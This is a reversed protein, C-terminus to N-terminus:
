FNRFQALGQQWRALKEQFSMAAYAPSTSPLTVQELIPPLRYRHYLKAATQGNFALLNITPHQQYFNTFRNPVATNLQIASDLSGPRQCQSLVDWVAIGHRILQQCREPYPLTSDFQFIISMVHWFTNRPHAYYRHESLSRQGPMSGLILIRPSRGIIPDFGNRTTTSMTDSENCLLTDNNYSESLSMAARYFM